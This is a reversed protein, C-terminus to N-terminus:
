RVAQAAKVADILGFGDAITYGRGFQNRFTGTLRRKSTLATVEAGELIDADNVSGDGAFDREIGFSVSSAPTFAGPAFNIILEKLNPIGPRANTSIRAPSIHVLRGLVFPFGTDPRTNFKLGIESLDIKVQRLSGGGRLTITFFNPDTRSADSGNGFATIRVSGGGRRRGGRGKRPRGGALSAQSFFPNIDHLGLV